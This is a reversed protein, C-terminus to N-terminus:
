RKLKYSITNASILIIPVKIIKKKKTEKKVITYSKIM